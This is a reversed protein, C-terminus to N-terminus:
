VSIREATRGPADDASLTTAVFRLDSIQAKTANLRCKPPNDATGRLM